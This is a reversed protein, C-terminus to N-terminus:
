LGSKCDQSGVLQEVSGIQSSFPIRVRLFHIQLGNGQGEAMEDTASLSPISGEDRM